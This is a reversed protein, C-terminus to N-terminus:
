ACFCRIMIMKSIIVKNCSSCKLHKGFFGYVKTDDINTGDKEIEEIDNVNKFNNDRCFPCNIIKSAVANFVECHIEKPSSKALDHYKKYFRDEYSHLKIKSILKEVSDSSMVKVMNLPYFQSNVINNRFKRWQQKGLNTIVLVTERKIIYDDYYLDQFTKISKDMQMHDDSLYDDFSSYVTADDNALSHKINEVQKNDGILDIIIYKEKSLM